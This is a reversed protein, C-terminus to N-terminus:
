FPLFRGEDESRKALDILRQLEAGHALSPQPAKDHAVAELFTYMCHLHGRDWGITNKSPLFSGGPAPYRAVCEIRVFGKMGGYPGEPLTNDYFWLWDPEMLNWRIAGKTGTIELLMEDNSGTAIKSAEIVGLAGGPMRLTMVAHDEAIQAGEATGGGPLPRREYLRNTACFVSAPWGIMWTILDLAHVALDNLVGGEALQKWGAPKGADLSGSHLYRCSFGTIEGLLGEECIQKARLTSPFFRDNFVIMSRGACSAAADAIRRAAAYNDALPKDIYVHKGAQLAAVAIEEHGSNPTCISVADIQPDNIIERWDLTSKKFDFAAMAEDVSSQRRSCVASLEPKFDLGKYYLPVARAAQAHTRGMFGWGIVAYRITKM